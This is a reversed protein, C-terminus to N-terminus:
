IVLRRGCACVCLPLYYFRYVKINFPAFDVFISSHPLGPSTGTKGRGYKENDTRRPFSRNFFREISLNALDYVNM